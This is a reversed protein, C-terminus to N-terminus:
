RAKQKLWEDLWGMVAEQWQISNRVEGPREGRVYCV